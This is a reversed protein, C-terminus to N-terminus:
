RNSQRLSKKEPRPKLLILIATQLICCYNCKLFNILRLKWTKFCKMPNLNRSSSLLVFSDTPVPVKCIIDQKNSASGNILKMIIANGFWFLAISKHSYASKYITLFDLSSEEHFINWIIVALQERWYVKFKSDAIFRKVVNYTSGFHVLFLVFSSCGFILLLFLLLLFCYCIYIPFYSTISSLFTQGWDYNNTSNRLGDEFSFRRSVHAM